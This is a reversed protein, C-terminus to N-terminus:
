NVGCNVGRRGPLPHADGERELEALFAAVAESDPTVAPPPPGFEELVRAHDAELRMQELQQPSLHSNRCSEGFLCFAKNRFNRCTPKASERTYADQPSSFQAYYAKAALSHNLGGFHKKRAMRNYPFSKCCHDCMYRSRGM